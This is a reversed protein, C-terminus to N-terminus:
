EEGGLRVVRVGRSDVLVEAALREGGVAVEEGGLLRCVVAMAGLCGLVGLCDEGEAVVGPCREVLM